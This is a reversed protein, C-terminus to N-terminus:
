CTGDMVAVMECLASKKCNADCVSQDVQTRTNKHWKQFLADDTAFRHWLDDYSAPSLDKVSYEDRASYELKWEPKDNENAAELNTMYHDYDIFSFDSAYHIIRFAPQHGGFSTVSSTQLILGTATENMGNTFMLNFQDNHTHGYLQGVIIDKNRHFIDHYRPIYGGVGNFSSDYPPIHGSLIVKERNNRAYRLIDELWEFQQVGQNEELLNYFNFFDGWLTNLAVVRLGPIPALSYYGGNRLDAIARATDSKDTYKTLWPAWATSFTELLWDFTDLHSADPGIRNFQDVPYSDSSPDSIELFNRTVYQNGISMIAPTNPFHKQILEAARKERKITLEKTQNWIDHPTNDGTIIILDPKHAAAAELLAELTTEPIDCSAVNGWKGAKKTADGGKDLVSDSRCCIPINCDIITGPEYLDDWHIDSLHLIKGAPQDAVVNMQTKPKMKHLQQHDTQQMFSTLTVRDQPTTANVPCFKALPCIKNADLGVKILIPLLTPAMTGVIMSCIPDVKDIHLKECISTAIKVVEDLSPKGDLVLDLTNVLLKCTTCSISAETVAVDGRSVGKHGSTLAIFLLTLLFINRMRDSNTIIQKGPKRNQRSKEFDVVQLGGPEMIDDESNQILYQRETNKYNELDRRVFVRNMYFLILSFPIVEGIIHYFLKFLALTPHNQDHPVQGYTTTFVSFVTAHFISFVTCITSLYQMRAVVDRRRLTAQCTSNIMGIVRYGYVSLLAGLLGAMLCIYATQLVLDKNSYEPTLDPEVFTLLTYCPIFLFFTASVASFSLWVNRRVARTARRTDSLNRQKTIYFFHITYFLQLLYVTNIFFEPIMDMLVSIWRYPPTMWLDLTNEITEAPWLPYVLWMRCICVISTMGYVVRLPFKSPTHRTFTRILLILDWMLLVLFSIGAICGVIKYDQMSCAKGSSISIYRFSLEKAEKKWCEDETRLGLRM